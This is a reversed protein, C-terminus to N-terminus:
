HRKIDSGVRESMSKLFFQNPDPSGEFIKPKFIMETENKVNCHYEIGPVETKM